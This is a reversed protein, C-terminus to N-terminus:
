IHHGKRILPKNRIASPTLAKGALHVLKDRIKNHHFIVLGGKKCGLAHQLTFSAKCGDCTAPLDPPTMGYRMLLADRCEQASLETVNVTSPLLSLWAGTHEGRRTTRCRGEPQARLISGPKESSVELQRKKM